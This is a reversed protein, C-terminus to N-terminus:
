SIRPSFYAEGKMLADLALKLELPVSDKVVYGSAGARVARRMFEESTHMSLILVRVDPLEATIQATADIGNLEKMSIDMVVVDPKHKRAPQMATRGNDAEAVISAGEISEILSRIGARVLTHDDVLLIRMMNRDGRRGAVRVGGAGHNGRRRRVRDRAQGRR